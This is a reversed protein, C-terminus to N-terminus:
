TNLRSPLRDKDQGPNKKLTSDGRLIVAVKAM